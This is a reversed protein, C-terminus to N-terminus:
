IVKEPAQNFGCLNRFGMAYGLVGEHFPVTKEGFSFLLEAFPSAM